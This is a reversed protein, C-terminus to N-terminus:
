RYMDLYDVVIGDIKDCDDDTMEYENCVEDVLIERFKSECLKIFVQDVKYHLDYDPLNSRHVTKEPEEDWRKLLLKLSKIVEKRDANSIYNSNEGKEHPWIILSFAFRKGTIKQLIEDIGKALEQLILTTAIMNQPEM